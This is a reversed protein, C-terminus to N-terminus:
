SAKTGRQRISKSVPTIRGLVDGAGKWGWTLLSVFPFRLSRSSTGFGGGHEFRERVTAAGAGGRVFRERVVAAAAGGTDDAGGAAGRRERLRVFLLSECCGRRRDLRSASRDLLRLYVLPPIKIMETICYLRASPRVTSKLM